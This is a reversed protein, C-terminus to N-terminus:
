DRGGNVSHPSVPAMVFRTIEDIVRQPERRVMQAPFRRVEWGLEMLQNQRDLDHTLQEPAAHAELGDVEVLRMRDPWAFDPYANSGNPLKIQKQQIPSPIPAELLLQHMDVEAVSGSMDDVVFGLVRRLRRTGAVGRGGRLGIFVDLREVTTVKKRLASATVRELSRDGFVRALDLVTREVTTVPIADVIVADLPRRTRHLIVGNPEPSESYPVMIDIPNGYIGEFGHLIGATRHSVAADPGAAMAAALVQTRFTAPTCNLYYVGPHAEEIRGRNLRWRIEHDTAGLARADRRSILGHQRAAVGVM